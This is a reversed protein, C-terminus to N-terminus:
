RREGDRLSSEIRTLRDEIRGLQDALAMEGERLIETEKETTREVFRQAMAATLLAVFGIGVLMVVMAIVKGGDTVPKIDGYGVTTVTSVAWWLGDFLNDAQSKEVAEFAAAGGLVVFGTLLAAWRLGSPSFFRNILRYSRGLRVLRLLRFVRGAQMVAPAFPPTLIVIPLAFPNDRIWAWRDDVVRLMVISEFTFALWIMWNGVSGITELPEGPNSEEIMLVPIVAIAVVLMPLEFRNAIREARENLLALSPLRDSALRPDSSPSRSAPIRKPNAGHGVREVGLLSASKHLPYPGAVSCGLDHQSLGKPGSPNAAPSKMRLLDGPAWVERPDSSTDGDKNVPSEPM